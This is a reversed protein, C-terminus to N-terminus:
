KRYFSFLMCLIDINMIIIIINDYRQMEYLKYCLKRIKQQSFVIAHEIRKKKFVGIRRTM